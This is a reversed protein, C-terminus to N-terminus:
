EERSGFFKATRAGPPPASDLGAHPVSDMPQPPRTSSTQRRTFLAQDLSLPNRGTPSFWLVVATLLINSSTNGEMLFQLPGWGRGPGFGGGSLMLGTMVLPKLLLFLAAGVTASTTFLGFILALGLMIEIYPLVGNPGGPGGTMKLTMYELVGNNLISIGLAVRLFVIVFVRIRPDTESDSISFERFLM